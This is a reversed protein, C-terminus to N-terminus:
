IYHTALWLGLLALVLLLHLADIWRWRRGGLFASLALPASAILLAPLGQSLALAHSLPPYLPNQTLQLAPALGAYLVLAAMLLSPLAALQAPGRAVLARLLSLLALVAPYGFSKLLIFSLLLPTPEFLSM